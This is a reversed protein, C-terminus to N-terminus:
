EEPVVDIAGTQPDYEYRKGEPLKPPGMGAKELEALDKPYRGHLAQFQRVCQRAPEVEAFTKARSRTKRLQDIYGDDSDGCGGICWVAACLVIFGRLAKM